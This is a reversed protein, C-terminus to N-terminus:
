RWRTGEDADEAHCGTGQEEEVGTGREEEMNFCRLVASNAWGEGGRRPVTTPVM